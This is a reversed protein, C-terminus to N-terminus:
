PKVHLRTGLELLTTGLKGIESASSGMRAAGEAAVETAQVAVPTARLKALVDVGQVGAREAPGRGGNLASFIQDSPTNRLKAFWSPMEGAVTAEAAPAAPAAPAAAPARGGSFANAIAGRLGGGDDAARAAPERMFATPEAANGVPVEGVPVGPAAGPAIAPTPTTPAAPAEVNRALAQQFFSLAQSGQQQTTGLNLGFNIAM